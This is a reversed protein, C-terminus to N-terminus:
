NINARRKVENMDINIILKKNGNLLSQYHKKIGEGISNSTQYYNNIKNGWGLGSNCIGNGFSKPECDKIRIENNENILGNAGKWDQFGIQDFIEICTKKIKPNNQQKM